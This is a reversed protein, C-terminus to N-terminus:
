PWLRRAPVRVELGIGSRWTRSDSAFVVPMFAIGHNRIRLRILQYKERM